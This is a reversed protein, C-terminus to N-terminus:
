DMIDMKCYMNVMQHLIASDIKERYDNTLLDKKKVGSRKRVRLDDLKVDNQYDM